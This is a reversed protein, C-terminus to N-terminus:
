ALVSFPKREQEQKSQNAANQEQQQLDSKEVSTTRTEGGSTYVKGCEPCIDTHLTVSQSIVKRGEQEAKARDRVVHENEHGRVAASAMDPDVRTPSQFSVGMDDSGDQYKREECTECQGDELAKQAGNMGNPGEVANKGDAALVGSAEQSANGALPGAKQAADNALLSAFVDKAGGNGQLFISSSEDYPRIRMRVAMEAPDAGKPVSFGLTAPQSRDSGVIGVPKVPQVPTEPSAARHSTWPGTTRQADPAGQINQAAPSNPSQQGPQIGSTRRAAYPNYYSYAGLGTISGIM